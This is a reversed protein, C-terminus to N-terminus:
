IYKKFLGFFYIQEVYITEPVKVCGAGTKKKRYNSVYKKELTM